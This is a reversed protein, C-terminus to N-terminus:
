HFFWNVNSLSCSIDSGTESNNINIVCRMEIVLVAVMCLLIFIAM